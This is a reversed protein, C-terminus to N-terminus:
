RPYDLVERFAELAVLELFRIFLRLAGALGKFAQLCLTTVFHDIQSIRRELRTADQTGVFPANHDCPSVAQTLV